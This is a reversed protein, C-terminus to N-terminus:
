SMALKYPAGTLFLFPSGEPLVWGQANLTYSTSPGKQSCYLADKRRTSVAEYWPMAQGASHLRSKLDQKGEQATLLGCVRKPCDEVEAGGM